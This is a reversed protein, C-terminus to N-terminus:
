GCRKIKPGVKAQHLSRVDANRKKRIELTVRDPRGVYDHILLNAPISEFVPPLAEEQWQKDEYRYKVFGMCATGVGVTSYVVFV